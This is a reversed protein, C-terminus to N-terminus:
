SDLAILDIDTDPFGSNNIPPFGLSVKETSLSWRYSISKAGSSNESKLFSNGMIELDAANTRHTSAM